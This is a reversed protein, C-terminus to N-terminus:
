IVILTIIWHMISLYILGIDPLKVHYTLITFFNLKTLIMSMGLEYDGKAGM